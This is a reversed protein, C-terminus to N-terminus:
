IAWTINNSKAISTYEQIQKLTVDKINGSTKYYDRYWESTMKVTQAFNMASIWKLYV